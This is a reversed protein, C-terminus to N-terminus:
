DYTTPKLLAHGTSSLAFGVNQAPCGAGAGAGGEEMGVTFSVGFTIVLHQIVICQM